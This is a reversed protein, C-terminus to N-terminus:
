GQDVLSGELGDINPIANDKPKAPLLRDLLLRLMQENGSLALEVAKSILDIKHDDLIEAFLTRRDKIGQPRGNPNGSEGKKFPM